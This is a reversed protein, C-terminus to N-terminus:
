IPIELLEGQLDVFYEATGSFIKEITKENVGLKEYFAKDTKGELNFLWVAELGPFYVLKPPALEADAPMEATFIFQACDITTADVDPKLKPAAALVADCEGKAEYKVLVKGPSVEALAVAPKSKIFTDLPGLDTPLTMDTADEALKFAFALQWNPALELNAIGLLTKCSENGGEQNCAFKADLLNRSGILAKMAPAAKAKAMMAVDPADQATSGKPVEKGEGLFFQHAKLQSEKLYEAAVLKLLPEVAQGIAGNLQVYLKGDIVVNWPLRHECRSATFLEARGEKYPLSIRLTPESEAPRCTKVGDSPILQDIAATLAPILAEDITEEDYEYVDDYSQLSIRRTKHGKPAPYEISIEVRKSEDESRKAPAPKAAEEEKSSDCASLPLLLSLILVASIPYHQRSM